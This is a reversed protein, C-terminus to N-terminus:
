VFVEAVPCRFGPLVDGGDLVDDETLTVPKAGPGHVAVTRTNPWAVWVARAGAEVWARTKDEVERVRDSPSVVEVVLDPAGQVNKETIKAKDCVVLVDPQVVNHEDLVVDIPAFGTFCKNEPHKKLSGHINDVLIQHKISPAPTMNYAAGDIIEWREEDPWQLYDQLTYNKHKM